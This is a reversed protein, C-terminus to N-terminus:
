LVNLNTKDVDSNQVVVNGNGTVDVTNDVPANNNNISITVQPPSTTIDVPPPSTRSARRSRKRELKYARYVAELNFRFSKLIAKKLDKEYAIKSRYKLLMHAKFVDFAVINARKIAAVFQPSYLDFATPEISCVMKELEPSQIYKHGLKKGRQFLEYLIEKKFEIYKWFQGDKNTKRPCKKLVTDRIDNMLELTNNFVIGQLKWYKFILYAAVLYLFWVRIEYLVTIM